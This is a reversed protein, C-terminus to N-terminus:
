IKNCFRCYKNSWWPLIWLALAPFQWYHPILIAHNTFKTSWSNVRRKYLWPLNTYTCHLWAVHDSSHLLRSKTMTICYYMLYTMGSTQHNQETKTFYHFIITGYQMQFILCRFKAPKALHVEQLSPRFYFLFVGNLITNLFSINQKGGRQAEMIDYQKEASSQGNYLTSSKM